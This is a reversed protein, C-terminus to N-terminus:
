FSILFTGTTPASSAPCSGYSGNHAEDKWCEVPVVVYSGNYADDKRLGSVLRSGNYIEDGAKTRPCPGYYRYRDFSSGPSSNEWCTHRCPGNEAQPVGPEEGGVLGLSEEVEM